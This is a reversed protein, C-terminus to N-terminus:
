NKVHLCNMQFWQLFIAHKCLQLFLVPETQDSNPYGLFSGVSNPLNQKTDEIDRWSVIMTFFPVGVYILM